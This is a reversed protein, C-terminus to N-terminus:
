CQVKEDFLDTRGDDFGARSIDDFLETRGDHFGTDDCLDTRGYFGAKSIDDFLETRRSLFGPM